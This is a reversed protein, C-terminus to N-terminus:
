SPRSNTPASGNLRRRQPRRPHIPATGGFITRMERPLYRRHNDGLRGTQALVRGVAETISAARSQEVELERGIEVDITERTISADPGPPLEVLRTRLLGPLQAVVKAAQAPTLRRVIAVLVIWLAQEARERTALRAEKQTQVVLKARTASARAYRRKLSQWEDFRRTRAPGGEIMQARVVAAIDPLPAAEDFLLDDLTVMGVVRDNEVLPVRRLRRERMLHLADMPEADPHLTAVDPSMVEGLSTTAPNRAEGVVRLVIDRDTVIGVVGPTEGVVVICGVENTRMARAAEFLSTRANQVILRAHRYARLSM